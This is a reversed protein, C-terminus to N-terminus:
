FRTIFRDCHNHSAIASIIITTSAQLDMHPTTNQMDSSLNHTNKSILLLCVKDRVPVAHKRFVLGQVAVEFGCGVGGVESVGRGLQHGFRSFFQRDELQEQLGGSSGVRCGTQDLWVESPLISIHQSEKSAQALASVARFIGGWCRQSGADRIPLQTDLKRKWQLVQTRARIHELAQTEPKRVELTRSPEFEPFCSSSKVQFINFDHM